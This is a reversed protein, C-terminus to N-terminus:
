FRRCEGITKIIRFFERGLLALASKSLQALAGFDADTSCAAAFNILGADDSRGEGCHPARQSRQRHFGVGSEDVPQINGIVQRTRCIREHAAILFRQRDRRRRDDGFDRAVAEHLARRPTMRIIAPAVIDAISGLFMEGRESLQTGRFEM